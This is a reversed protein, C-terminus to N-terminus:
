ISFLSMFPPFLVNVFFLFSAALRGGGGVGGGSDDQVPKTVCQASGKIIKKYQRLLSFAELLLFVVVAVVVM